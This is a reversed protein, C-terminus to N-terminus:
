CLVSSVPISIIACMPVKINYPKMCYNRTCIITTSGSAWHLVLGEALQVLKCALGAVHVGNATYALQLAPWILPDLTVM